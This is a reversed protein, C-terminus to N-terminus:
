YRGTQGGPVQPGHIAICDPCIGHTFVQSPDNRLFTHVTEEALWMEGVEYRRCWACRAILVQETETPSSAM